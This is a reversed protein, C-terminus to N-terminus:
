PPVAWGRLSRGHGHIGLSCSWGQSRGLRLEPQRQGQRLCVRGLGTGRGRQKGPILSNLVCVSSNIVCEEAFVQVGCSWVAGCVSACSSCCNWYHMGVRGGPLPIESVWLLSLKLNLGCGSGLGARSHYWCQAAGVGGKGPFHHQSDSSPQEAQTCPLLEPKFHAM